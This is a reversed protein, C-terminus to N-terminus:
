CGRGATEATAHFLEKCLRLDDDRGVFPPDLGRGSREGETPSSARPRGCVCRRPRARSSSRAWRTPRSRPRSARRTAEDVLCPARGPPARSAPPPTSSTAPSWGRASPASRSRPRAPPSAPGPGRARPGAEAGLDRVAAVLELAARVSREADDEHAAPSGWVAVVADGIFKEITGGHRDVIARATEFYRRCCSASTRRTVTRPTRAHIRGPRHVARVGDAAGGGTRDATRASRGDAVRLRRLVPGGPRQRYRVGPVAGRATHRLQRLVAPRRPERRWLLQMGHPSAYQVLSSLEEGGRSRRAARRRTRGTPRRAPRRRRIPATRAVTRPRRGARSPRTAPGTM